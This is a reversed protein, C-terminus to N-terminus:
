HWSLEFRRSIRLSTCKLGRDPKVRWVLQAEQLNPWDANILTWFDAALGETVYRYPLWGFGNEGWDASWSNQILFAGTTTENETGPIAIEMSDSYGMAVIAHNGVSEEDEGPFAIRGTSASDKVSGYLPIGFAFPLEAALHARARLLLRDKDPQDHRDLRYAQLATFEGAVAYCFASPEADVRPDKTNPDKYTGADLYPWFKEPPTGLSLLVGMVQRIYTGGDGEHGLFNKAVKYLFLRSAQISHGFARQEFYELLNSVVHASCTNFGGQFEVPPAWERLDVTAPFEKRDELFDIVGRVQLQERIADNRLHLDSEDYEEPIWGTGLKLTWSM